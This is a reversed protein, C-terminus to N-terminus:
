YFNDSCKVMKRSLTYKVLYMDIKLEGRDLESIFIRPAMGGDGWYANM